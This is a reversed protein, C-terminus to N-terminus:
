QLIFSIICFSLIGKTLSFKRTVASALSHTRYQPRVPMPTDQSRCHPAMKYHTICSTSILFKHLSETSIIGKIQNLNPGSAFLLRDDVSSDTGDSSKSGIIIILTENPYTMKLVTSIADDAAITETPSKRANHNSVLLFYGNQNRRLIEIAKRVMVDLSPDTTRNRREETAMTNPQFIGILDDTKSSHVYDLGVKEWVSHVARGEYTKGRWWENILNRGDKRMGPQAMGYEPDSKGYPIMNSRGGGMIINLKFGIKNLIQAPADKCHALEQTAYNAPPAFVNGTTVVGTSKSAVQMKHVLCKKFQGCKYFKYKRIRGCLTQLITYDKNEYPRKPVDKLLGFHAMKDLHLFDRNNVQRRFLRAEALTLTSLGDLLFVIINKAKGEKGSNALCPNYIFAIIFFINRKLM